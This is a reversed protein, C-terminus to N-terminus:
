DDYKVSCGYPQTQATEIEEGNKLAELAAMVYNDATEVTEFRPSPDSDIAGNYVLVGEPNIVYMHPTVKADYLKGVTGDADLLRATPKAGTEAIIENAEEPSTHGQKGPASSAITLWVVGDSTAAEQLKQMNGTEYHKMVYPCQHNTWELVVIQGAFDSLSHETGNTDTLTFDPAPEGVVAGTTADESMEAKEGDNAHDGHMEAFAAGATVLGFGAVIALMMMWKKLRM